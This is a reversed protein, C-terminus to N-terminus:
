KRGKRSRKNRRSKRSRKNRSRRTSRKNRRTNRKRTGGKKSQTKMEEYMNDLYADLRADEESEKKEEKYMNDLYADLRKEDEAEKKQQKNIPVIRPNKLYKDDAFGEKRRAEAANRFLLYDPRLEIDPSGTGTRGFMLPSIVGEEMQQAARAHLNENFDIIEPDDLYDDDDRSM